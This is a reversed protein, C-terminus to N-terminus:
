LWASVFTPPARRTGSRNNGRLDSPDNNTDPVGIRASSPVAYSLEPISPNLDDLTDPSILRCGQRKPVDHTNRFPAWSHCDLQREARIPTNRLAVTLWNPDGSGLSAGM